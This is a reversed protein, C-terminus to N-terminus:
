KIGVAESAQSLHLIVDGYDRVRNYEFLADSYSKPNQNNWGSNKLFNGVSFICDRLDFLNPTASESFSSVAYKEFSTPIFQSCGFAGAFSGRIKFIRSKRHNKSLNEMAKIQDVAWNSKLELRQIVKNRLEQPSYSRASSTSSPKRQNLEMLTAQAVEPHNAQALSFFVIPLQFQGTNKGHRTEVWLLSAIVEKPVGYTNEARSLTKNYKKIFAKIKRVSRENFHASHDGPNLFGLVNMQIIKNRSESNYQTIYTTKMKQVFDPSIGAGILKQEAFEIPTLKTEPFHTLVYDKSDDKNQLHACGAFMMSVAILSFTKAFTGTLRSHLFGTKM